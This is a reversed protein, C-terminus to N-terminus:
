WFGIFWKAEQPLKVKLERLDPVHPPLRLIERPTAKILWSWVGYIIPNAEFLIVKRDAYNTAYGASGAFPEIITDHEPPPYRNGIKWKSGFFSFFRNLKM